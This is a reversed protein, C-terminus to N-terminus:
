SHPYAGRAGPNMIWHICGRTASGRSSSTPGSGPSCRRTGATSGCWSTAPASCTPPWGAWPGASRHEPAIHDGVTALVSWIRIGGPGPRSDRLPGAMDKLQAGTVPSLGVWTWFQDFGFETLQDTTM